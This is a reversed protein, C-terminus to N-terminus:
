IRASRPPSAFTPASRTRRRRHSAAAALLRAREAREGFARGDGPRPMFQRAAAAASAGDCEAWLTWVEAVADKTGSRRCRPACGIYVDTARARRNIADLLRQRDAVAFFESTMGTGATRYRLELFREASADGALIQLHALQGRPDTVSLSNM